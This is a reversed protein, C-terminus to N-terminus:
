TITKHLGPDAAIPPIPSGVHRARSHLLSAVEFTGATRMHFADGSMQVFDFYHFGKGMVSTLSTEGWWDELCMGQLSLIEEPAIWSFRRLPVSFVLWEAKPVVAGCTEFSGPVPGRCFPPSRESTVVFTKHRNLGSALKGHGLVIWRIMYYQRDGISRLNVYSGDDSIIVIENNIVNM